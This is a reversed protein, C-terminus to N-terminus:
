YQKRCCRECKLFLKKRSLKQRFFQFEESNWLSKITTGEAKVDGVVYDGCPIVRGNPMIVMRLWPSICGKGLKNSPQRYYTSIQEARLHPYFNISVNKERARTKVKSMEVILDDVNIDHMGMEADPFQLHLFNVYNIELDNAVDILDALHAHSDSSITCALFVRPAKSGKIKKIKNIAQIGEVARDFVGAGRIKNHLKRAGDISVTIVDVGISVIQEADRTLFSGNTTYSCRFGEQKIFEAIDLYGEYVSPEGGLLNLNPRFFFSKKIDRVVDIWEAPSLEPSRFASVIGAKEEQRCVCFPCRLNCRMTLILDINLPFPSYGNFIKLFNAFRQYKAFSKQSLSLNGLWTQIGM